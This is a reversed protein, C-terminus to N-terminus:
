QHKAFFNLIKTYVVEAAHIGWVFDIHNFASTNLKQVFLDRSGCLKPILREVDTPDTLHDTASYHVSIPVTIQHLPFDSPVTTGTKQLGFYDYDKQDFYHVFQRASGGAFFYFYIIKVGFRLKSLLFISIFPILGAPTHCTYTGFM